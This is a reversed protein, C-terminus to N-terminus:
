PFINVVVVSIEVIKDILQIIDPLLRLKLVVDSTHHQTPSLGDFISVFGRLFRPLTKLGGEHGILAEDKDCGWFAPCEQMKLPLSKPNTYANLSPIKSEPFCRNQTEFQRM